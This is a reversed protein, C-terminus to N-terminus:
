RVHVGPPHIEQYKIKFGMSVSISSCRDINIDLGAPTLLQRKHFTVIFTNLHQSPLIKLPM